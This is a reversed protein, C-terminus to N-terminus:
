PPSTTHIWHRMDDRIVQPNWFHQCSYVVAQKPVRFDIEPHEHYTIIFEEFM